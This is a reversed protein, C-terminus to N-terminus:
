SCSSSRTRSWSRSARLAENDVIVIRARTAHLVDQLRRAPSTVDLPVYACDAKLVSLLAAIANVSKRVFIPVFSGRSLGRNQLARAHANTLADLAAYSVADADCAVAVKDPFRRASEGFYQQVLTIV